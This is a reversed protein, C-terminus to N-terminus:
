RSCRQSGGARKSEDPERERVLVGVRDLRELDVAAVAAHGRSRLRDGAALVRDRTVQEDVHVRGMRFVVRGSASNTSQNRVSPMPTPRPPPSRRARRHRARPSGRPKPLGSIGASDILFPSDPEARGTEGIRAADGLAPSMLVGEAATLRSGRSRRMAGARRRRSSKIRIANRPAATKEIRMLAAITRESM